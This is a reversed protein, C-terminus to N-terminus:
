RIIVLVVVSWESLVEVPSAMQSYGTCDLPMDQKNYMDYFKSM